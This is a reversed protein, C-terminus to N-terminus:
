VVLQQSRDLLGTAECHFSLCMPSHTQTNKRTYSCVTVSTSVDWVIVTVAVHRCAWESGEVLRCDEEKRVATWMRGQDFDTQVAALSVDRWKNQQQTPLTWTVLPSICLAFWILLQLMVKLQKTKNQIMMTLSLKKKKKDARIQLWFFVQVAQDDWKLDFWNLFCIIWKGSLMKCFGLCKLVALRYRQKAIQVSQIAGQWAVSNKLVHIRSTAM